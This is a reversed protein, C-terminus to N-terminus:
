AARESSPEAVPDPQEVKPAPEPREVEPPWVADEPWSDSLWQFARELRTVQIDKGAELSALKKTDGFMRWSVTSRSLGAAVRYVCVVKLLSAIASM